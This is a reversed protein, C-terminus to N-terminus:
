FLDVLESVEEIEYSNHFKDYFVLGYNNTEEGISGRHREWIKFPEQNVFIITGKRKSPQTREEELIRKSFDAGIRQILGLEENEEVTLDTKANSKESMVINETAGGVLSGSYSNFGSEAVHLTKGDELEEKLEGLSIDENEEQM